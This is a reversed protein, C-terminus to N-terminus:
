FQVTFPMQEIMVERQGVSNGSAVAVVNNSEAKSQVSVESGSSTMAFASAFANADADHAASSLSGSRSPAASGFLDDSLSGSNKSDAVLGTGSSGMSLPLNDFVSDTANPALSMFFPNDNADQNSLCAESDKGTFGASNYQLVIDHLIQLQLAKDDNSSNASKPQEQPAFLAEDFGSTVQNNGVTNQRSALEPQDAPKAGGNSVAAISAQQGTAASFDIDPLGGQTPLAALRAIPSSDTSFLPPAPACSSAAIAHMASSSSGSAAAMSLYGSLPPQQSLESFLLPQEAEASDASDSAAPVIGKAQMGRAAHTQNIILLDHLRRRRSELLMNASPADSAMNLPMPQSPPHGQQAPHQPGGALQHHHPQVPALSGEAPTGFGFDSNQAFHGIQSMKHGSATLSRMHGGRSELDEHLEHPHLTSPPFSDQPPITHGNAFGLQEGPHVHGSDPFMGNAHAGMPLVNNLAQGINHDPYGPQAGDGQQGAPIGMASHDMGHMGPSNFPFNMPMDLPVSIQSPNQLTLGYFNEQNFPTFANANRMLEINDSVVRGPQRRSLFANNFTLRNRGSPTVSQYRGQPKPPGSGISERKMKARRNQFWIQVTRPTMGLQKGLIKRKESDPKTTVAFVELLRRTQDPRLRHRKRNNADCPEPTYNGEDSGAAPQISSHVSDVNIGAPLEGASGVNPVGFSPNRDMFLDPNGFDLAHGREDMAPATPSHFSQASMLASFAEDHNESKIPEYPGGMSANLLMAEASSTEGHQYHGPAQYSPHDPAQTSPQMQPSQWPFEGM